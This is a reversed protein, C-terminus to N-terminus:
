MIKRMYKMLQEPTDSLGNRCWQRFVGWGGYFSYSFRYMADNMDVTDGRAKLSEIYKTLVLETVREIVDQGKEHGLITIAYEPWSSLLAMIDRLIDLDNEDSYPEEYVRCIMPTIADIYWSNIYDILDNIDRYHVYFTGRSINATRCIDAVSIRNFQKEKLLGLFTNCILDETLKNQMERVSQAM